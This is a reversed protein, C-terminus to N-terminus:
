LTQTFSLGQKEKQSEKQSETQPYATERARATKKNVKRKYTIGRDALWYQFNFCALFCWRGNPRHGELDENGREIMPAPSAEIHVGTVNLNHMMVNLRSSIM